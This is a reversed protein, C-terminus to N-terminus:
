LDDIPKNWLKVLFRIVLYGSILFWAYFLINGINPTEYVYALRFYLGATSNITMWAFGVFVSTIIRRFITKIGQEM